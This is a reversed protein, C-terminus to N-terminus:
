FRYEVKLLLYRPLLRYETISTSIDDISFTKFSHTNFLNNGVLSLIIKNKKVIYKIDLDAFYYTNKGQSIDGFFYREGQLQVVTKPNFSFTTYLFSVNNTYANNLSYQIKNTNWQTGLHYNFIGKFGSRLEFGFNYNTSKIERLKSNNISNKYNSKSIGIDIKLNSSITKLYKNLSSFVTPRVGQLDSKIVKRVRIYYYIGINTYCSVVSPSKKYRLNILHYPM